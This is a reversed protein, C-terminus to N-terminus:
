YNEQYTITRKLNQAAAPTLQPTHRWKPGPGVVLLVRHGIVVDIEHMEVILPSLFLINM